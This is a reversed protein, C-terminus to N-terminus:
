RRAGTTCLGKVAARQVLEDVASRAVLLRGGIRTGPIEGAAILTRVTEPSMGLIDALEPVGMLLSKEEQRVHRM